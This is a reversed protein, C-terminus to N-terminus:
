LLILTIVWNALFGVLMLILILTDTRGGFVKGDFIYYVFLLPLSFVMPHYSVAAAVHGTALSVLARTMGCGPCPIHFFHRFLCHVGLRGMIYSFLFYGGALLLRPLITKLAKVNM